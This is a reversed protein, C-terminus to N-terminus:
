NRFLRYRYNDLANNVDITIGDAEFEVPGKLFTVGTASTVTLVSNAYSWSGTFNTCLNQFQMVNNNALGLSYGTQCSPPLVATYSGNANILYYGILSYYGPLVTKPEPALDIKKKTCGLLICCIFTLAMLPFRIINM